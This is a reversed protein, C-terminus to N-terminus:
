LATARSTSTPEVRLALRSDTSWSASDCPLVALQRGWSWTCTGPTSGTSSGGAPATSRPPERDCPGTGTSPGSTSDSNRQRRTTAHSTRCLAAPLRSTTPVAMASITRRPDALQGLRSGAEIGHADVTVLDPGLGGAGNEALLQRIIRESQDYDGEGFQHHRIFGDADIFYLAPWYENRFARWIAYDNDIAIPYDVAMDSAARRVNDVDHEFPFEPTHVGILVLGQDKYRDRWARLYPLTRLWNICTYTWFDVLVVKGRLGPAMLPPSNLWGTASSLSPFEGEVPLHVM